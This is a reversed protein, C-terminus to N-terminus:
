FGLRTRFAIGSLSLDSTRRIFKGQHVDDVFDPVDVLDFWNIFEYGVSIELNRYKWALGMALEMVPIIKQFKEGVSSLTTVNSNNLEQFTSDFDGYLLSGAGRAYLSFGWGLLWNGEAGARFGATQVELLSSVTDFNADGGNYIAIFNQDIRAFRLGGFPRFRMGSTPEYRKSFELDFLNYTLSTAATATTVQEVTGPHTQTAYLVGGLPAIQTNSSASHLWTYYFGTEWDNAHRFGFGGRVGSRAEWDASEITGQPRGNNIPDVIVFDLDRRRPKLFLYDVSWFFSTEKGEDEFPDAHHEFIPAKEEGAAHFDAEDHIIAEEGRENVQGTTTNSLLQQRYQAPASGIVVLASVFALGMRIIGARM